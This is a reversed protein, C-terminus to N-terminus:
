AAYKVRAFNAPRPFGLNWFYSLTLAVEGKAAGVYPDRILAADEWVCAVGAGTIGRARGVFASWDGDDTADEISGRVSWSLGAGRLFSATTMNDATSNIVTSEWLRYSGVTACVRLDGLGGAHIGDVMGTFAGLTGPGLVKNAQSIEVETIAATNLGTIDADTGSAGDDGLFVARDVGETLAMGLDRRIAMELDPLRLADEETFVARVANRTPELNTVGVTWAADGAAEQRARQAASAGATTIPYNAVGPAVSDFTIGVKSAATEAFLRDLWRSSQNVQANTDTTRRTEVPALMSLPFRGARINMSANLESEAGTVSRGELAASAYETVRARSRLEVREREEQTLGDGGRHETGADKAEAELAARRETQVTDLEGLLERRKALNAEGPELGNIEKQLDIARLELKVSKKM